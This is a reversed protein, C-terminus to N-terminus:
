WGNTSYLADKYNWQLKKNDYTRLKLINSVQKCAKEINISGYHDLQICLTAVLLDGGGVNIYNETPPVDFRFSIKSGNIYLKNNYPYNKYLFITNKSLNFWLDSVILDAYKAIRNVEKQTCENQIDVIVYKSKRIERWRADSIYMQEPYCVHTIDSSNASIKQLKFKYIEALINSKKGEYIYFSSLSTKGERIISRSIGRDIIESFIMDGYSDNGLKTYIATNINNQILYEAVNWAGGILNQCGKHTYIFDYFTPGIVNIM